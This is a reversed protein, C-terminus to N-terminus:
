LWWFSFIFLYLFFVTSLTQGMVAWDAEGARELKQALAARPLNEPLMPCIGAAWLDWELPRWHLGHVDRPWPSIQTQKNNDKLHSRFLGPTAAWWCLGGRGRQKRAKKKPFVKLGAHCNGNRITEVCLFSGKGRNRLSLSCLFTLIGRPQSSLFTLLLGSVSLLPPPLLRKINKIRVM